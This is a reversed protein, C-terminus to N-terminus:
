ICSHIWPSAPVKGWLQDMVLCVPQRMEWQVAPNNRRQWFLRWGVKFGLRITNSLHGHLRGRCTACWLANSFPTEAVSIHTHRHVVVAIQLLSTQRHVAVALLLETLLVHQRSARYAMSCLWLVKEASSASHKRGLAHEPAGQHWHRTLSPPQRCPAAEPSGWM